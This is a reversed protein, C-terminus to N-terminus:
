ADAEEQIQSMRNELDALGQHKAFEYDATILALLFEGPEDDTFTIKGRSQEQVYACLEDYSGIADLRIFFAIRAARYDADDPYFSKMTQLCVSIIFLSNGEPSNRYIKRM